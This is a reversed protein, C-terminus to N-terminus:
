ILQKKCIYRNKRECPEDLINRSTKYMICNQTNKTQSLSFLDPSPLSGDGWLWTGREESYSLGIWFFFKIRNMFSLEDKNQLHLLSSNQSACFDRSEAWTKMENSIFYCNCQYGIWKEQCSCCDSGEQAETTGGPSSTQQISQKHFSNKLLIGLTAMLVLCTVALIGSILRWPTTQLAAM